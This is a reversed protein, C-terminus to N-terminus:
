TRCPYGSFADLRSAGRLILSAQRFVFSGQYVVLNIPWAHVPHSDKLPTTSVTSARDYWDTAAILFRQGQFRIQVCAQNQLKTEYEHEQKGDSNVCAPTDSFDCWLKDTVMFTPCCGNGERVRCNLGRQWHYQVAPFYTTAPKEGRSPLGGLPAEKKVGRKEPGM